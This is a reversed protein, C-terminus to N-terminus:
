LERRGGGTPIGRGLSVMAIHISRCEDELAARRLGLASHALRKGEVNLGELWELAKLDDMSVIGDLADGMSALSDIQVRLRRSPVGGNRGQFLSQEQTKEFWARNLAEKLNEYLM